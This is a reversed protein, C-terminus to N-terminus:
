CRSSDVWSLDHHPFRHLASCATQHHIEMVDLAMAARVSLMRESEPNDSGTVMPLRTILEDLDLYGDSNSDLKGFALDVWRSWLQDQQLQM